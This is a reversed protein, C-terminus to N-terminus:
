SLNSNLRKLSILTTTTYNNKIEMKCSVFM